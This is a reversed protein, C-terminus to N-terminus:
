QGGGRGKTQDKELGTSREQSWVPRKGLRHVKGSELGGRWGVGGGIGQRLGVSKLESAFCSFDRLRTLHQM